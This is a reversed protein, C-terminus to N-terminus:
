SRRVEVWTDHQWSWGEPRWGDLLALVGTHAGALEGVGADYALAAAAAAAGSGDVSVQVASRGRALWGGVGSVGAAASTDYPLVAPTVRSILVTELVAPGSLTSRKGWGVIDDTESATATGTSTTTTSTASDVIRWQTLKRHHARKDTGKHTLSTVADEEAASASEHDHTYDATRGANVSLLHRAPSTSNFDIPSADPSSASPVDSSPM